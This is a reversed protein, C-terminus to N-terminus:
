SMGVYDGDATRAPKHGELQEKGIAAKKHRVYYTYSLMGFSCVMILGFLFVPLPSKGKAKAYKWEKMTQKYSKCVKMSSDDLNENKNYGDVCQYANLAEDCIESNDCDTCVKEIAQFTNYAFSAMFDSNDSARITCYAIM